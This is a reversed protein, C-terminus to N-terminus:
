KLILFETRRNLQRGLPTDNPAVPMTEGFGAYELRGPAIGQDILYQYVAKARERSLNLNDDPQGVHDTHGRIEIRLTDDRELLSVLRGLEVDSRKDLSASGTEFFINKLVVPGPAVTEDKPLPELAITDIRDEGGTSPQLTLQGSYFAYGDADAHVGYTRGAHLVIPRSTSGPQYRFETRIDEDGPVYLDLLAPVAEGSQKDIVVLATTVVEAAKYDEPLAFKYIDHNQVASLRVGTDEGRAFYAYKGDPSVALAGEEEQTNIPYGFHEPKQWKGFEKESVYLDSGGFGPHGNSSFYLHIGDFHLFPAQEDGTTNIPEGVNEPATWTGDSNKETMWIDKGGISGSRNSVFYLIRGDASLSPQGEWGSTNIGSGFNEPESWNGDRQIVYFLDCSGLGDRRNCGTFVIFSGDASISHAGENQPTNLANIPFAESWTGDAKRESMYFDEQGYAGRTFIMYKGDASFSPWYESFEKSNVSEGLKEPAFSVPHRMGEELYKMQAMADEAIKVRRKNEPNSDLYAQYANVAKRPAPIDQYIRALTFLDHDDPKEKMAIADEMSEAAEELKGSRYLAEAKLVLGDYFAPNSSLIGSLMEVAEPFRAFKVLDKAEEFAKQDRKRLDAVTTQAFLPHVLTCMFFIATM